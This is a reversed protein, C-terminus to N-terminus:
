SLSTMLIHEKKLICITLPLPPLKEEAAGAVEDIWSLLQGGFLRGFGNLDTNRVVRIQETRSDAITKKGM